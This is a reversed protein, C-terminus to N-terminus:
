AVWAGWKLTFLTADRAQKFRFCGAVTGNPVNVQTHTRCNTEWVYDLGLGRMWNAMNLRVSFIATVEVAHPFSKRAAYLAAGADLSPSNPYM